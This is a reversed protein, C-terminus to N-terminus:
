TKTTEMRTLFAWKYSFLPNKDQSALPFSKEKSRSTDRSLRRQKPIKHNIKWIFYNIKRLDKNKNIIRAKYM